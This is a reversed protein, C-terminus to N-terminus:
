YSIMTIQFSSVTNGWPFEWTSTIYLVFVVYLLAQVKKLFTTGSFKAVHM